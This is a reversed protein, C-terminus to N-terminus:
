CGPARDEIEIREYGEAAIAALEDTTHIRALYAGVQDPHSEGLHGLLTAGNPAQAWPLWAPLLLGCYRCRYRIHPPPSITM